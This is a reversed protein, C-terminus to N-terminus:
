AASGALARRYAAHALRASRDWGIYGQAARRSAEAMHRRRDPDSLVTAIAGRLAEVDGPAVLLAEADRVQSPIGGVSTSIIPCGYAMAELIVLPFTDALTPLM